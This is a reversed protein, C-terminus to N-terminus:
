HNSVLDARGVEGCTCCAQSLDVPAIGAKPVAAEVLLRQVVYLQRAVAGVEERRSQNGLMRSIQDLQQPVASLRALIDTMVVHHRRAAPPATLAPLRASIEALQDLVSSQIPHDLAIGRSLGTMTM